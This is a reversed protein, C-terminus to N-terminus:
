LDEEDDMEIVRARRLQALLTDLDDADAMGLGTRWSLNSSKVYRWFARFTTDRAPQEDSVVPCGHECEGREMVLPELSKAVAGSEGQPRFVETVTTVREGPFLNIQEEVDRRSLRSVTLVETLGLPRTRVCVLQVADVPDALGGHDHARILVRLEHARDSLHRYRRERVFTGLWIVIGLTAVLVAGVAGVYDHEHIARSFVSGLLFGWACQWLLEGARRVARRPRREERTGESM